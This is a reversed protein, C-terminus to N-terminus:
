LYKGFGIRLQFEADKFAKNKYYTLLPEKRRVRRKLRSMEAEVDKRM